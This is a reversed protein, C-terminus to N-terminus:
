RRGGGRRPSPTPGLSCRARCQDPSPAALLVIWGTTTEESRCCKWEDVTRGRGATKVRYEATLHEGFLRHREASDGFLSLCGKDGMTGALRAHVFSELLEHRLRCAPGSAQRACEPHALTGWTTSPIANTDSFPQSFAGVFHGHSPLVVRVHASPRCFQYPVDSLAGHPKTQRRRLEAIGGLSM